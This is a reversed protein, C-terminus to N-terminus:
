LKREKMVEKIWSYVDLLQKEGLAKLWTTIIAKDQKIVLERMYANAMESYKTTELIKTEKDNSEKVTYDCFVQVKTLKEKDTMM